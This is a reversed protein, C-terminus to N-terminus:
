WGCEIALWQMVLPIVIIPITPMIHFHQDYQSLFDYRMNPFPFNCRYLLQVEFIYTYSGEVDGNTSNTNIILMSESSTLAPKVTMQWNEMKGLILPHM